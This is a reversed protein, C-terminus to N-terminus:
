KDLIYRQQHALQSYLLLSDLKLPMLVASFIFEKAQNVPPALSSNEIKQKLLAFSGSNCSKIFRPTNHIGLLKM